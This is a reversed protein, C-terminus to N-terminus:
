FPVEDSANRSVGPLVGQRPDYKKYALWEHMLDLEHQNKEAFREPWSPKKKEACFIKSELVKVDFTSCPKRPWNKSIPDQDGSILMPDETPKAPANSVVPAPAPRDPATPQQAKQEPAPTAPKQPEPKPTQAVQPDPAPAQKEPEPKSAQIPAKQEVPQATVNVIDDDEDEATVIRPVPGHHRQHLGSDGYLQATSSLARDAIKLSVERTLEPDDSRATFQLRLIAFGKEIEARTYSPRVGLSRIARNKAKSEALPLINKRAQLIEAWSKGEADPGWTKPDDKDGRLDVRKSGQVLLETGDLQMVTGVAQYEVYYPNNENDIQGCLNPIWRLGSARSISELAPKGLGFRGEKKSVEYADLDPDPFVFSIGVQHFPLLATGIAGGPIVLNHAKGLAQIAQSIREVSNFVGGTSYKLDSTEAPVIAENSM